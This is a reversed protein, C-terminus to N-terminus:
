IIKEKKPKGTLNPQFIQRTMKVTTMEKETKKKALQLLVSIKCLVYM